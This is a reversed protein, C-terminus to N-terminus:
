SRARIPVVKDPAGGVIEAVLAALKELAIRKEDGYPHRDYVGEVGPIVHGLVREAHEPNVGARSMLSRATRRLDHLGWPPMPPLRKRLAVLAHSVSITRGRAPQFVFDSGHVRPVQRLVDRALAPLQVQGLNNKERKEIPVTWTGDASVDSRKMNVLKGKRAGTLLALRCLGGFAEVGETAKWLARIEDDDLIRSRSANSGRKMGKVIPVVYHDDRSAFWVMISRITALVVDAQRKGYEDEIHDLLRAVDGRGIATFPRDRWVPLVYKNLCREIEYRSRLGKAEVHRKIWNASVTAFSDPAPPPAETASLGRKVRAIITRAQQRADEIKLHNTSGLTTWVQKGLLPDRAVACYSRAASPMVRVYHGILEPDPVAYRKPRPKLRAVAEDTLRRRRARTQTM